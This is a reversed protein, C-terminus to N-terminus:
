DALLAIVIYALIPLGFGALVSVVFALRIWLPDVDLARGMGACVGLVKGNERDLSFRPATKLTERLSTGTGTSTSTATSSSKSAM